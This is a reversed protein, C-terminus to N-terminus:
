HDQIYKYISLVDQTDVVGDGNVDQPVKEVAEITEINKFNKWVDAVYYAIESGEPVYLTANKYVDDAFVDEDIVPPRKSFCTIKSLNHCYFAGVAIEKVNSPIEISTLGDCGNFAFIGISTVSNPITIETLGDCGYFVYGGISTVGNGITVAIM